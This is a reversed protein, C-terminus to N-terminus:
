IFLNIGIPAMIQIPKAWFGEKQSQMIIQLIVAKYEDHYEWSKVEIIDGPLLELEDAITGPYVDNILYEKNWLIKGTYKIDMGFLPIYLNDEFDGKIISAMAVKPRAELCIRTSISQGNRIYRFDIIEYPGYDMLFNQIDIISEFTEGNISEVIDGKELGMFFAPSNPKIYIIEIKKKRYTLGAGLWVHIREGGSYLSGLSKKLYKVPIAFNVGEFEEIGAFVINSVLKENDILPGGSNGPNIPSDIQIVSGLELFSRDTASVIGSTVTSGLGGPSGLAIVTEGITLYDNDSFSYVYEPIASIKILALDLVPDWGIVKAPVKEISDSLKVYLNSLGEYEPDVVSEIVHYNTVAYGQKDIFFGSGVIIDQHGIGNNFTIGRNVFITMVGDIYNNNDVLDWQIDRKNFEEKLKQFDRVPSTKSYINKLKILKDNSMKGYNFKKEGLLVGAKHLSNLTNDVIFDYLINDIDYESLDFGLKILNNYTIFFENWLKGEYLTKLKNPLLVKLNLRSNDLFATDFRQSEYYTLLQYVKFLESEDLSSNIEDIILADLSVEREINGSVCSFIIVLLLGLLLNKM